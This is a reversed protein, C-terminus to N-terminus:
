GKLVIGSEYKGNVRLEMELDQRYRDLKVFEEFNDFNGSNIFKRVLALQMVKDEPQLRNM